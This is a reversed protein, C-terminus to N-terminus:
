LIKLRLYELTERLDYGQKIAEADKESLEAGVLLRMYGDNQILPVIEAPTAAPAPSHFFGASRDYLM